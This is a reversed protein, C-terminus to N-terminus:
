ASKKGGIRDAADKLERGMSSVHSYHHHIMVTGSHGLLAAVLTDSEGSALARTAYSHRLGYATVRRGVIRSLRTFKMVFAQRSFAGGNWSRFLLGTTHRDRQWELVEFAAQNLYIIRDGKGAGATKHDRLRVVKQVWDVHREEIVAAESPRAGTHWLFTIVACWDGKCAQQMHRFTDEPIVADAGASARPPKKFTLARGAWALFTTVVNLYNARTTNSWNARRSSAEVQEPTVDGLPVTGFAALFTNLSFEYGRVTVPKLRDRCDDLYRAVLSPVTRSDPAPEGGADRLFAQLAAWAAAEDTPDTVGLAIQKGKHTFFWM